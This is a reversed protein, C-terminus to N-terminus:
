RTLLEHRHNEREKIGVSVAAQVHRLHPVKGVANTEGAAVIFPCLLVLLDARAVLFAWLRTNLRLEEGLKHIVARVLTAEACVVLKASHDDLEHGVVWDHRRAWRRRGHRALLQDRSDEAHAVSVAIAQEVGLLKAGEATVSAKVTVVFGPGLLVPVKTSLDSGVGISAHVQRGERVHHVVVGLATAVARVRLKVGHQLDHFRVPDRLLGVLLHPRRAVAGERLRGGGHRARRQDRRHEPQNVCVTIPEQLLVLHSRKRVESAVFAALLLPPLVELM